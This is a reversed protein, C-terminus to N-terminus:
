AAREEDEDDSSRRLTRFFLSSFAYTTAFVLVCIWLFGPLESM